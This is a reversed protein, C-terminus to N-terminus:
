KIVLLENENIENVIKHKDRIKNIIFVVYFPVICQGVIMYPTFLKGMFNYIVEIITNPFNKSIFMLNSDFVSNMIYAILCVIGVISSYYVIDKEELNIYNTLNILLGLYVMIGHFIFSHLSVIHLMPYTLLSTTPFIIFVIGGIIGGTALFVDGARKLKGKCFSSLVGAYLLISCYYLPIYNNVNKIGGVYIKFLIIFIEASLVFITCRQIIQKIKDKKNITNKLAIIIGITTLIILVFHELTFIGCAEYEGPKAFFMKKM